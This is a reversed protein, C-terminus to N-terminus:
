YVRKCYNWCVLEKIQNTVTILYLTYTIYVWELVRECLGSRPRCDGPWPTLALWNGFCNLLLCSVCYKGCSQWLSSTYESVRRKSRSEGGPEVTSLLLLYIICLCERRWRNWSHVLLFNCSFSLLKGTFFLKLWFVHRNTTGGTRFVILAVILFFIVPPLNKLYTKLQFKMFFVFNRSFFFSIKHFFVFNLSNLQWLLSSIRLIFNCNQSYIWQLLVFHQPFFSLM